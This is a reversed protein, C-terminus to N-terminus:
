RRPTHEDTNGEELSEQLVRSPISLWAELDRLAARVKEVFVGCGLWQLLASHLKLASRLAATSNHPLMKTNSKDSVLYKWLDACLLKLEELKADSLTPLRAVEVPLLRAMEIPLKVPLVGPVDVLRVASVPEKPGVFPVLLGDM